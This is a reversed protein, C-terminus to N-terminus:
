KFAARLNKTAHAIPNAWTSVRSKKAEAIADKMEEAKGSAEIEAILKDMEAVADKRANTAALQGKKVQEKDHKGTNIVVDVVHIQPDDIGNEYGEAHLKFDKDVMLKLTIKTKKAPRKTIGTM